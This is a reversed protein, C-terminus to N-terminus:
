TNSGQTPTTARPAAHPASGLRVMRLNQTATIFGRTECTVIIDDIAAKVENAFNSVRPTDYCPEAELRAFMNVENPKRKDRRCYIIIKM